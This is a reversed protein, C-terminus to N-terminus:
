YIQRELSRLARASASGARLFGFAVLADVWLDAVHYVVPVGRRRGITRGALGAFLPPMEVFLVDPRQDGGTMALGMSTASAMVSLVGALRPAVGSGYARLTPVRRVRVGSRWEWAACEQASGRASQYSPYATLVTVEHGARALYEAYASLREQAAGLEPPYYQTLFLVRVKRG